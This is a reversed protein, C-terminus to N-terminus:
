ELTIEAKICRGYITIEGPAVADASLKGQRSAMIVLRSEVPKIKSVKVRGEHRILYIGAGNVESLRQVLVMDGQRLRGLSDMGDGDIRYYFAKDAPIGEVRSGSVVAKRNDIVKSMTGDYVPVDTIISNFAHEWQPVPPTKAKSEKAPKEAPKAEAAPSAEEPATYFSGAENLNTDLIKSIRLLLAENLIRRGEEVELIFSESVGAKKGLAKPSLGRAARAEKIQQGIRSM